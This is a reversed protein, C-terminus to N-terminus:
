EVYHPDHVLNLDNLYNLYNLLHLDHLLHLDYVQGVFVGILEPSGYMMFLYM